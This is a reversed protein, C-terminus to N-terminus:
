QKQKRALLLTTLFTEAAQEGALEQMVVYGAKLFATASVAAAHPHMSMMKEVLGVAMADSDACMQEAHDM